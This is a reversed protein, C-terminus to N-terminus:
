GSLHARYLLLLGAATMAAGAVRSALRGSPVLKEILVFIALGAIWLLNMIGGVFLLAMLAWCCGVCVIGHDLGLKLSGWRSASFGGRSILFGLPSQCHALCAYKLPSFQYLGAAVLVTGGFLDDASAMTQTLLALRSLQWQAVTAAISFGVWVVLYGVVFWGTAALPSGHDATKRGANAYLLVMPTVSPLMMGAMMTSWMVFMFAFDAKTWPRFAPALMGGMGMDIRMDTASSAIPRMEMNMNAALWVVYAWAVGAIVAIASLVIARDRRLVRDLAPDSM